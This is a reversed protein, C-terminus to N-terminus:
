AFRNQLWVLLRGFYQDQRAENAMSTIPRRLANRLSRPPRFLFTLFLLAAGCSAEATLIVFVNGSWFRFFAGTSYIGFGALLGAVLAPKYAEIMQRGNVDLIRKM